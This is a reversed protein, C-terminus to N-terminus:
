DAIAEFDHFEDRNKHEDRDEPHTVVPATNALNVVKNPLPSNPLSSKRFADKVVIPESFTVKVKDNTDALDSSTRQKKYSM